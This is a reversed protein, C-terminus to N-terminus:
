ATLLIVTEFYLHQAICKTHMVSLTQLWLFLDLFAKFVLLILCKQCYCPLLSKGRYNVNIAPSCFFLMGLDLNKSCLIHILIIFNDKWKLKFNWKSSSMKVRDSLTDLICHPESVDANTSGERPLEWQM